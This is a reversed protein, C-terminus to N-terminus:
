QPAPTRVPPRDCSGEPAEGDGPVACELSLGGSLDIAGQTPAPTGPSAASGERSFSKIVELVEQATPRDGADKGIHFARLAGSADFVFTAPAAVGDGLLNFVGWSKAVAADADYLM